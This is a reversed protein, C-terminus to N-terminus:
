REKSNRIIKLINREFTLMLDLNKYKELHSLNERNEGPMTCQKTKDM